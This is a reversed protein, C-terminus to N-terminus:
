ACVCGQSNLSLQIFVGVCVCVCVCVCVRVSVVVTQFETGMDRWAKCCLRLVTLASTEAMRRTQNIETRYNNSSWVDLRTVQCPLVVATCTSEVAERDARVVNRSDNSCVGGGNTLASCVEIACQIYVCFYQCLALLHPVSNLTNALASTCHLM